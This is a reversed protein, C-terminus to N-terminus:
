STREYCYRGRKLALENTTIWGFQEGVYGWRIWVPDIDSIDPCTRLARDLDRGSEVSFQDPNDCMLNALNVLVKTIHPFKM